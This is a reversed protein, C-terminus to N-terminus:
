QPARADLARIWGIVINGVVSPQYIDGHGAGDVLVMRARHGARLLAAQFTTSFTSSVERDAGGHVLLVPLTPRQAVWTMPNAARRTAPAPTPGLLPAALDGVSALDYPGALGVLAGAAVPPYPCRDRLRAPILAALASLQAGASHGLVVVRTPAIGARRARAAAYSVACTVDQAPVPWRAGVDGARYTVTIAVMGAAALEDALPRLGTEDASQWGGGPVLVVVPAPRRGAPLFVHAQLGPLYQDVAAEHPTAPQDPQRAAVVVIVALVCVSVVGTVIWTVSRRSPAGRAM